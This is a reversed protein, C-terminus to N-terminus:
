TLLYSPLRKLTQVIAMMCLIEHESAEPALKNAKVLQPLVQQRVALEHEACAIM